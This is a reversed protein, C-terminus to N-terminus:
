SDPGGADGHRGRTSTREHRVTSHTDQYLEPSTTGVFEAAFSSHRHVALWVIPFLPASPRQTHGVDARILTLTAGKGDCAEHFALPTMGDRSGRYLCEGVRKWRLWEKVLVTNFRARIDIPVVGMVCSDAFQVCCSWRSVLCVCM